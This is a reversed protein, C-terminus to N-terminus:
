SVEMAALDQTALLNLGEAARTALLQVDHMCEPKPLTGARYRKVSLRLAKLYGDITNLHNAVTLAKAMM